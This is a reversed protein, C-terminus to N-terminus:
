GRDSLYMIGDDYSESFRMANMKMPIPDLDTITHM